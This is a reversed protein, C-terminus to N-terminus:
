NFWVPKPSTPHIRRCTKDFWAGEPLAALKDLNEFLWNKSARCAVIEGREDRVILLSEAFEEGRPYEGALLFEALEVVKPAYIECRRDNKRELRFPESKWKYVLHYKDPDYVQRAVAYIEVFLDHNYDDFSKQRVRAGFTHQLVNVPSNNVWIPSPKVFVQKASKLIDVSLEPPNALEVYAVDEDSLEDLSLTMRKGAADHLVVKDFMISVYEGQLTEGSRLVWERMDGRCGMSLMTLMIIRSLIKM